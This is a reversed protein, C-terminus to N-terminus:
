ENFGRPRSISSLFRPEDAVAARRQSPVGDLFLVFDLQQDPRGKENQYKRAIEVAPLTDRGMIRVLDFKLLGEYSRYVLETCVLKDSSFFDFEFDYPKGVHTFARAIAQGKQRPTLRPRLVAVYDAHMSEALSNLIVGESVSEIVTRPQGDHANKQYDALHARVAPDDSTWKGSADRRVLGTQALEEPAGVYLAAHPWFGPLFANSMFWNRRELLIDGPQLQKRMVEIQEFTILSHWDALRTDGIWTSLFTRAAYVPTYADSKVRALLREVQAQPRQFGSDKMAREARDAYEDVLALESRPLGADLWQQRHTKLYANLESLTETTRDSAISERVRDFLAAPIGWKPDPENLKRKAAADNEYRKVLTASAHYVAASAAYALLFCRARADPDRVSEFGGYGAALRLLASRYALFSMLQARIRDEEDPKYYERKEAARRAKLERSLQESKAALEDLGATLTLLKERDSEIQANLQEPNLQALPSHADDFLGGRDATLRGAYFALLLLVVQATAAWGVIAARPIKRASLKLGRLWLAASGTISGVAGLLILTLHAPHPDALINDRLVIGAIGAGAALAFVITARSLRRRDRPAVLRLWVVHTATCAVVVFLWWARWATPNMKAGSWVLILYVPQSLLIAALAVSATNPYVARGRAQISALWFGFALGLLTLISQWRPDHLTHVQDWRSLGAVVLLGVFGAFCLRSLFRFTRGPPPADPHLTPPTRQSM